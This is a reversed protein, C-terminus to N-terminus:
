QSKEGGRANLDPPSPPQSQSTRTVLQGPRAQQPMQNWHRQRQQCMQSTRMHCLQDPLQLPLLNEKRETSERKRPRHPGERHM